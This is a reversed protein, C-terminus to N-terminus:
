SSSISTCSPVLTSTPELIFSSDSKLEEDLDVRRPRLSRPSLENPSLLRLLRDLRRPPSKDAEVRVGDLDAEIRRRRAAAVRGRGSLSVIPPDIRSVLTLLVAEMFSELILACDVFSM